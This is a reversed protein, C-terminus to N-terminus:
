HGSERARQAAMAKRTEPPLASPSDELLERVLHDAALHGMPDALMEQQSAMSDLMEHVDATPNALVQGQINRLQHVMDAARSRYLQLMADLKPRRELQNKAIRLRESLAPRVSPDADQLARVMNAVEYELRRVDMKEVATQLPRCAFLMRLYGNIIVDLRDIDNQNLMVGPVARLESLKRVIDRMELYDKCAPDRRDRILTDLEPLPEEVFLRKLWGSEPAEPENLGWIEKLYYAREQHLRLARHKRDVAAKFTPIDPLVWLVGAQVGATAVWWLPDHVAGAVTGFGLVALNAWHKFAEWRYPPDQKENAM